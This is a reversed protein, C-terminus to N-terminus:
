KNWARMSMIAADVDKLLIRLPPCDPYHQTVLGRVGELSAIHRDREDESITREFSPSSEHYYLKFFVESPLEAESYERQTWEDLDSRISNVRNFVGKRYYSAALVSKLLEGAKAHAEIPMKGKPRRRPGVLAQVFTVSNRAGTKARDRAEYQTKAIEAHAITGPSVFYPTSPASQGAWNEETIVEQFKDLAAVLPALPIGKEVDAILYLRSGGEPYYMGPWSPRVIQFGHQQAWAAREDSRREIHSYPEDAFLYRKTRPEYWVSGHDSGPVANRPNGGPFARSHGKSPRLKTADMFQLTRAAACITRRADSQTRASDRRELHDPGVSRFRGLARSNGLHSPSILESVPSDLGLKLTERGDVSLEKDRWYATLFVVARQAPRDLLSNRAHSFNEFGAAHAAENLAQVHPINRDVKISKALRKIGDVTTPRIPSNSM